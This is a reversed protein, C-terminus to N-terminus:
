GGGRDRPPPPPEGTIDKPQAFLDGELAPQPDLTAMTQATSTLDFETRAAAPPATRRSIRWLAFAGLCLHFVATCAFLGTPGTADM